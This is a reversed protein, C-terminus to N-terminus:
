VCVFVDGSQVCVEDPVLLLTIAQVDGQPGFACRFYLWQIGANNCRQTKLRACYASFHSNNNRSINTTIYSCM